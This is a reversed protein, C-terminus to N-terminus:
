RTKRLMEEKTRRLQMDSIERGIWQEAITLKERLKKNEKALETILPLAQTM